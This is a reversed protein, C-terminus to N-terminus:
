QNYCLAGGLSGMLKTCRGFSSGFGKEEDAGPHRRRAPEAASRSLITRLRCGTGGRGCGNKACRCGFAAPVSYEPTSLLVQLSSDAPASRAARARLVGCERRLPSSCRASPQVRRTTGLDVGGITRTGDCGRAFGLIIRRQGAAGAAIGDSGHSSVAKCTCGPRPLRYTTPLWGLIARMPPGCRHLPWRTKDAGFTASEHWASVFRDLPSRLCSLAATDQLRHRRHTRRRPGAARRYQLRARRRRARPRAAGGRRRLFFLRQAGVRTCHRSRPLFFFFSLTHVATRPCSARGGSTTTTHPGVRVSLFEILWLDVVVERGGGAAEGRAAAAARPRRQERHEEGARRDAARRRRRLRRPPACLHRLARLVGLRGVLELVRPLKALLEEAVPGLSAQARRSVLSLLRAHVAAAVLSKRLEEHEDFVRLAYAHHGPFCARVDLPARAGRWFGSLAVCRRSCEWRRTSPARRASARARLEIHPLRASSGGPRRCTPSRSCRRSCGRRTWTSPRGARARRRMGIACRILVGEEGVDRGAPEEGDARMEDFM